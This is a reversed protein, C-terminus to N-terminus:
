RPAGCRPSPREPWALGGLGKARPDVIAALPASEPMCFLPPYGLVTMMWRWGLFDAATPGARTTRAERSNWAAAANRWPSTSIWRSRGFWSPCRAGVSSRRLEAGGLSKASPSEISSGLAAPHLAGWQQDPVTLDQEQTVPIMVPASRLSASLGGHSAGIWPRDDRRELWPDSSLAAAAPPFCAM